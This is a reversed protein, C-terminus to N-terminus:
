NHLAITPVGGQVWSDAPVATLPDPIVGSASTGCATASNQFTPALEAGMKALPSAASSTLTVYYKTNPTIVCSGGTTAANVQGAGAFSTTGAVAGTHCVRAGTAAVALGIDYLDATNDATNVNYSISSFTGGYPGSQWGSCLVKNQQSVTSANAIGSATKIFNASPSLSAASGTTNNGLTSATADIVQGSSNTGVITKSVPLAAGNIGVVTPNPYTGGLDGGAAGTPSASGAGFLGFGQSANLYLVATGSAYSTLCVQMSDMGAVAVNYIGDSTITAQAIVSGAPTGTTNAWAQKQIQVQPQLTGSWTGGVEVAVTSSVISSVSLTACSSLGSSGAVNLNFPGVRQGLAPASLLLLLLLLRQKM